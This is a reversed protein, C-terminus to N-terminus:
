SFFEHSQRESTQGELDLERCPVINMVFAVREITWEGKVLGGPLVVYCHRGYPNGHLQKKVGGLSICEKGKWDNILQMLIRAEENGKQAADSLLAEAREGNHEIGRALACCKALMVMAETDGLAVCDELIWVAVEEDEEDDGDLLMWAIMRDNDRQTASGELTAADQTETTKNQSM